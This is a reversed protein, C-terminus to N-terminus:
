RSNKKQTDDANEVGKVEGNDDIGIYIEGGESYNLFGVVEKELSDNLERKFEVRNSEIM